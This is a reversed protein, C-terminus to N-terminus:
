NTVKELIFNNMIRISSDPLKKILYENKNTETILAQIKQNNLLKIQQKVIDKDKWFIPPKFSIL